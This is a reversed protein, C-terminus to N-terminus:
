KEEKNEQEKAKQEKQYDYECWAFFAIIGLVVLLGFFLFMGGVGLHEVLFAFFTINFFIMAFCFLMLLIGAIRGMIWWM